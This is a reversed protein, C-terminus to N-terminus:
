IVSRIIENIQAFMEIAQVHYPAVFVAIMAISIGITKM